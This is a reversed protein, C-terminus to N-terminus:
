PTSGKPPSLPPEDDEDFPRSGYKPMRLRYREPGEALRQRWAMAAYVTWAFPNRPQGASEKPLRGTQELAGMNWEMRALEDHVTGRGRRQDKRLVAKFFAAPPVERALQACTEQWLEEPRPPRKLRRELERRTDTVSAHTSACGMAMAVAIERRATDRLRTTQRVSPNGIRFPTEQLQVWLPHLSWRSTREGARPIRLEMWGRPRRLLGNSWGGPGEEAPLEEGPVVRLGLVDKVVTFSSRRGALSPFPPSLVDGKKNVSAYEVVSPVSRQQRTEVDSRWYGRWKGIGCRSRDQRRPSGPPPELEGAYCIPCRAPVTGDAAPVPEANCYSCVKRPYGVLYRWADPAVELWDEVTDLQWGDIAFRRLFERKCELELRWVPAEPDYLDGGLREWVERFWVKDPSNDRIEVTKDYCRAYLPKGRGWEWGTFMLGNWWKRKALVDAAGDPREHEDNLAAGRKHGCRACFVAEGTMDAKCAVCLPNPGSDEGKSRARTVMEEVWASTPVVGQFDVCFDIRTPRAPFADGVELLEALAARAQQYAGRVGRNWLPYSGLEVKCGQGAEESVCLTGADESELVFSYGGAAGHDAVTYRAHGLDLTVQEGEATRAKAERLRKVLAPSADLPSTFALWDFGTAVVRLTKERLQEKSM